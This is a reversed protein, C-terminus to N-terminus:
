NWGMTNHIQNFAEIAVTRREVRALNLIGVLKRWRDEINESVAIGEAKCWNVEPSWSGNENKRAALLMGKEIGIIINPAMEIGHQRIFAKLETACEM